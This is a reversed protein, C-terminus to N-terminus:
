RPGLVTMRHARSIVLFPGSATLHGGLEGLSERLPVRRTIQGNSAAVVLLEDRNPWWVDDGILVGRGFSFGEPDDAGVRRDPWAPEGTAINVGM